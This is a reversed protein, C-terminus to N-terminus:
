SSPVVVPPVVVFQCIWNQETSSREIIMTFTNSQNGYIDVAYIQVEIEDGPCQYFPLAYDFDHPMSNFEIFDSVSSQTINNFKAYYTQIEYTSSVNISEIEVHTEGFSGYADTIILTVNSTAINNEYVISKMGNSDTVYIKINYTTNSELGNFTYTNSDSTVYESDNIAYHYSVIDGEGNSATVSATITNNTASLEVNDITALNYKDFYIYCTDSISTKLNVTKTEDNWIIESGKECASMSANFIYGEQPWENSSAVEYENSNVDTELMMTLNGSSKINNENAVIPQEKKILIITSIVYVLTISIFISRKKM